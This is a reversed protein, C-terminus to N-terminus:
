PSCRAILVALFFFHSTTTNRKGCYPRMYGIAYVTGIFSMVSIILAFFASLKDVVLTVTGAPYSLLYSASLPEQAFLVRSPSM